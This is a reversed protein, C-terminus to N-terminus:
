QTGGQIQHLYLHSILREGGEGPTPPQLLLRSVLLRQGDPSFRPHFYLAGQEDPVVRQTTHSQLDMLYIGTDQRPNRYSLRRGTSDLTPMIGGGRTLQEPEAPADTLSLRFLDFRVSGRETRPGAGYIAIKGDRSVTLGGALMEWQDSLQLVPQTTGKGVELRMLRNATTYYLYQGGPGWALHGIPEAERVLDRQEGTRPNILVIRGENSSRNLRVLAIERGKPHWVSVTDWTGEEHPLAIAEGGGAPMVWVQGTRMFAIQRGDPSWSGYGDLVQGDTLPTLKAAPQGGTRVSRGLAGEADWLILWFLGLIGMALM